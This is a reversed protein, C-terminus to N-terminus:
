LNCSFRSLRAACEKDGCFRRRLVQPHGMRERGTRFPPDKWRGTCAASFVRNAADTFDWGQAFLACPHPVRRFCLTGM